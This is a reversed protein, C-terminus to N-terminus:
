WNKPDLGAFFKNSILRDRLETAQKELCAIQEQDDAAAFLKMRSTCDHLNLINWRVHWEDESCEESCIYYFAIRLELLTRAVGAM